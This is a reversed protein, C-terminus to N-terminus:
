LIATLQFTSCNSNQLPDGHDVIEKSSVSSFSNDAYTVVM